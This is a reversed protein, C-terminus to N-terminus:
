PVTHFTKIKDSDPPKSSLIAHADFDVKVDSAPAESFFEAFLKSAESTQPIPSQVKTRVSAPNPSAVKTGNFQPKKGPIPPSRPSQMPTPLDRNLPDPVPTNFVVSQIGLGTPEEWKTPLARLGAEEMAREEDKRTPLKIPARSRPTASAPAPSQGWLSTASKVTVRTEEQDAAIQQRLDHEIPSLVRRSLSQLLGASKPPSPLPRSSSNSTNDANDAEFDETAPTSIQGVPTSTSSTPSRAQRPLMDAITPSKNPISPSKPSKPTKSSQPSKLVMEAVHAKKPPTGPKEPSTRSTNIASNMLITLPRNYSSNSPSHAPAEESLGEPDAAAQPTSLVSPLSVPSKSAETSTTPLRRKPGRARGKTMHVLQGEKSGDIQDKKEENPTVTSLVPNNRAAVPAGALPSPGRSLIGALAPNFRDALKSSAGPEKSWTGRSTVPAKEPPIAQPKERLRKQKEIAEPTASGRDSGLSGNSSNSRTSEARTLANRKTIAEPTPSGRDRTMGNDSTKRVTASPGGAKMEQKKKLISEKLEDVRETKKPGGTVALGAKGRLINNKLEDPAVYNQTQTRKLKGFVNKFELEDKVKEEGSVQRPKLVSRFDKKPPTEPKQKSVNSSPKVTQSKKPEDPAPIKEADTHQGKVDAVLGLQEVQRATKHPPSSLADSSSPAAASDTPQVGTTTTSDVKQTNQQESKKVMGSSLDNPLGRISPATHSGALPPSRLLGDTNVEHFSGGKGLDVSARQQKVKSIEAMWSPQQPPAAKPKPSDPKNIASELWSAKTPSWRKPDMTKSPSTPPTTVWKSDGKDHAGTTAVSRSRAHNPIAPKAFGDDPPSHFRRKTPDLTDAKENDQEGQTLTTNSYSSGPRSNSLPSAERSHSSSCPDKPPSMPGSLGALGGGSSGHSSLNSATSNGRTLGPGAQASWRKTVSDSRKLMASQVFGGLGKTPSSPREIREPLIRVQSPSMALTRGLGAQENDTSSATESGPPELRQASTLPLPTRTRSSSSMSASSSFIKSGATSNHDSGEGSPSISRLSEPVPSEEKWSDVTSERYLGPLRVSGNMSTTDSMTDDHERRYAPSHAGRDATQRFWSPDRSSLAQAVDSGSIETDDRVTPEPTARPSSAANNKAAVMSLPRSRVSTSGRSGPRQQWSLTGARSPAMAASPSSRTSTPLDAVIPSVERPVIDSIRTDDNNSPSGNLRELAGSVEADHMTPPPRFIMSPTTVNERTPTNTLSRISGPTGANSSSDKTPSLSRAREAHHKGILVIWVSM